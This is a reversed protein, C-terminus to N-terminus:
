HRLPLKSNCLGEAYGAAGEVSMGSALGENQAHRLCIKYPSYNLLLWFAAAALVVLLLITTLSRASRM